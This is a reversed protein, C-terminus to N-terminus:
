PAEATVARGPEVSDVVERLEEIGEDAVVDGSRWDYEIVGHSELKPLHQHYLGIRVSERDADTAAGVSEVLEDVTVVSDAEVLESVIRFRVEDAVADYADM